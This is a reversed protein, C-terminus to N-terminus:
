DIGEFSLSGKMLVWNIAHKACHMSCVEIGREETDVSIIRDPPPRVLMCVILRADSVLSQIPEADVSHTLIHCSGHESRSLTAAKM